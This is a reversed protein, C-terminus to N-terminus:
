FSTRPLLVLLLPLLPLMLLGPLLSLLRLPLLRLLLWLGVGAGVWLCRVVAVGGLLLPLRPGPLALLSCRCRDTPRAPPGTPILLM